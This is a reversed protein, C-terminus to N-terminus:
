TRCHGGAILRRLMCAAVQRDDGECRFEPNRVGYYAGSACGTGNLPAACSGKACLKTSGVYEDCACTPCRKWLHCAGLLGAEGCARLLEPSAQGPAELVRACSGESAVVPQADAVVRTPTSRPASLCREGLIPEPVPAASAPPTVAAHAALFGAIGVLLVASGLFLDTRTLM